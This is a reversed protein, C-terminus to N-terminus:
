VLPNCMIGEVSFIIYLVSNIWGCWPSGIGWGRGWRCRHSVSSLIYVRISDTKVVMRRRTSTNYPPSYQPLWRARPPTVLPVQSGDQSLMGGPKSWVSQRLFFEPRALTDVLTDLQWSPCGPASQALVDSQTTWVLKSGGCATQRSSWHWDPFDPASQPWVSSQTM